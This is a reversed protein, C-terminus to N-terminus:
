HCTVDDDDHEMEYPFTPLPDATNEKNQKWLGRLCNTEKMINNAKGDTDDDLKSTKKRMFM